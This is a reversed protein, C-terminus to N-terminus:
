LMYSTPSSSYIGSLSFVELILGERDITVIFSPYNINSLNGGLLCWVTDNLIISKLINFDVQNVNYYFMKAWLTKSTIYDVKVLSSVNGYNSLNNPDNITTLKYTLMIDDNSFLDMDILTINEAHWYNYEELTETQNIFSYYNGHMIPYANDEFWYWKNIETYFIFTVLIYVLSFFMSKFKLYNWSKLTENKESYVIQDAIFVLRTNTKTQSM